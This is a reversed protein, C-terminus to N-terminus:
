SRVGAPIKIFFSVSCLTIRIILFRLLSPYENLFIHRSSSFSPCKVLLPLATHCGWVMDDIRFLCSQCPNWWNTMSRVIAPLVLSENDIELSLLHYKTSWNQHNKRGPSQPYWKCRQPLCPILYPQFKSHYKSISQIQPYRFLYFGLASMAIQWPRKTTKSLLYCIILVFFLVQYHPNHQPITM